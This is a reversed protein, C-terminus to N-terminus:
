AAMAAPNPPPTPAGAGLSPTMPQGGPAGGPAGGGMAALAQNPQAARQQAVMQLLNQMQMQPSEAMENMHKGIGSIATMVSKHLQSGMPIGPLAEQLASVAIKLKGMSGSMNGPNGHPAVAPGAGPPAVSLGPPIQGGFPPM